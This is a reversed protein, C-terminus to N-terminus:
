SRIVVQGDRCDICRHKLGRQSQRSLCIPIDGIKFRCEEPARHEPVWEIKWWEKGASDGTSCRVYDVSIIKRGPGSAPHGMAALYAAFANTYIVGCRLRHM